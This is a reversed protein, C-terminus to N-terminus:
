HLQRILWKGEHCYFYESAGDHYSLIVNHSTRVEEPGEDHPKQMYVFDSLPLNMDRVISLGAPPNIHPVVEPCSYEDPKSKKFYTVLFYSYTSYGQKKQCWYVASKEKDIISGAKKSASTYGYAYPAEIYDYIDDYFDSIQECGMKKAHEVLEQPMVNFKEKSKDEESDAYAQSASIALFFLIAIFIRM